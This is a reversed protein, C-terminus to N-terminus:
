VFNSDILFMGVKSSSSLSIVFRSMVFYKELFRQSKKKRQAVELKNLCRNGNM